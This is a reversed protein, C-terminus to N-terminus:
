RVSTHAQPCRERAPVDAAAQSAVPDSNLSCVALVRCHNYDCVCACACVCVCVRVCVCVCARVRM